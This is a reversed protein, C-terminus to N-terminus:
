ANAKPLQPFWCGVVQFVQIPPAVDTGVSLSCLQAQSEKEVETSRSGVPYHCPIGRPRSVEMTKNKPQGQPMHFNKPWLNFGHWLLSRLGWCHCCRVASESLWWPVGLGRNKEDKTQQHCLGTVNTKRSLSYNGSSAAQRRTDGWSWTRGHLPHYPYPSLM